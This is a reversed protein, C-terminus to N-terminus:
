KKGALTADIKEKLEEWNAGGARWLTGNVIFAPVGHLDFKKSAEEANRNIREQTKTDTMCQDIQAPSLGAIRGVQIIGGRVDTIGNEPDWKDQNRFMMDIYQFYKDKPLCNRAISEVAGDSAAIPFVRFVYYVKGTDIYDAKLQPFVTQNFHACHPCTPAAYEIITIPANKNGMAMDDARVETKQSSTNEIGATSDNTGLLVYAAIAGILAVGAIAALIIQKRSILGGEQQHPASQAAKAATQPAPETTKAVPKKVPAASVGASLRLIERLASIEAREATALATQGTQAFSAATQERTSILGSLATLIEADGYDARIVAAESLVANLTARRADGEAASLAEEIRDKLAM